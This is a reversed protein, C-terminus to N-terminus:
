VVSKRDERKTLPKTNDRGFSVRAANAIMKDDGVHQIYSVKGIGDGYIEIEKM